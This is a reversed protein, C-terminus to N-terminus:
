AITEISDGANPTSTSNQSGVLVKKTRKCKLLFMENFKEMFTKNMFSYIFVNWWSNSIVLSGTVFQIWGAAPMSSFARYLQAILFPTWAIYYIGTITLTTKVAKLEIVSMAQNGGREQHHGPLAHIRKAHGISIMLLKANTFSIVISPVLVCVAAATLAQPLVKGDFFSVICTCLVADYTIIQFPPWTASVVLVIFIICIIWVTLVVLRARSLTVIVIYRLPKTVALYRDLSICMLTLSSTTSLFTGLSGILKCFVDGYPWYDMIAPSVAFGVVIGILLDTVALSRLLFKTVEGFCNVRPLIILNIVNSGVVLSFELLISLTRLVIIPTPTALTDDQLDLSSTINVEM